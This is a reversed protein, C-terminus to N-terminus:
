SRRRDRERRYEEAAQRFSERSIGPFPWPDPPDFARFMDARDDDEMALTAGGAVLLRECEGLDRELLIALRDMLASPRDGHRLLRLILAIDAGVRDLRTPNLTKDHVTM